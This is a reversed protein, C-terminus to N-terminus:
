LAKQWSKQWSNWREMCNQISLQLYQDQELVEKKKNTKPHFPKYSRTLM